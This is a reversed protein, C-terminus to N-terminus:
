YYWTDYVLVCASRPRVVAALFMVKKIHSKHEVKSVPAEEGDRLYYKQWDKKVFFWKEDVMVFNDM